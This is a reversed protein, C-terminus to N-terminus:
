ISPHQKASQVSLIQEDQKSMQMEDKGVRSKAVSSKTQDNAVSM